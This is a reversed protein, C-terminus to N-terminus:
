GCYESFLDIALGVAHPDCVDVVAFIADYAKNPLPEILKYNTRLWVKDTICNTAVYEFFLERAMKMAAANHKMAEERAAVSEPEACMEYKAVAGNESSTASILSTYVQSTGDPLTLKYVYNISPLARIDRETLFQQYTKREM